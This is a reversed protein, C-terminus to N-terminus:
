RRRIRSADILVFVRHRRESCRMTPREETAVSYSKWSHHMSSLGPAAMQCYLSCSVM